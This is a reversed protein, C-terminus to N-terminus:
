APRPGWGDDWLDFADLRANETATIHRLRYAWPEPRWAAELVALGAVPTALQLRLALKGTIQSGSEIGIWSMGSDFLARRENRREMQKVDNTVIADFDLDAATPFLDVDDVGQLQVQATTVFQHENFQGQLLRAWGPTVNEDLLLKM